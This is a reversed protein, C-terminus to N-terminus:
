HQEEDEGRDKEGRPSGMKFKGASILVLKMGISNTIERPLKGVAAQDRQAIGKRAPPPLANTAGPGKADERAEQTLAQTAPENSEDTVVRQKPPNIVLVFWALFLVASGVATLGVGALCGYPV